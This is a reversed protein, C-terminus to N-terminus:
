LRACQDEKEGAVNGGGFPAPRNEKCQLNQRIWNSVLEVGGSNKFVQFNGLVDNRFAALVRRNEELQLNGEVQNDEILAGEAEKVQLDGGIVNGWAELSAGREEVQLDGDITSEEVLAFARRKVQINGDVYSQAVVEVRRADEAQINGDVRVGVAVLIAETRVTVNGQVRTGELTCTAGSPVVVKEVTVAGIRGNCREPNVATAPGNGTGSTGASGSMGTAEAVVAGDLPGTSGGGCAAVVLALVM